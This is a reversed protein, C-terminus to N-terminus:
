DNENTVVELQEPLSLQSTPITQTQNGSSSDGGSGNCGFLIGLVFTAIVAQIHLRKM